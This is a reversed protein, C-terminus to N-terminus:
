NLVRAIKRKLLRQEPKSQTLKIAKQYYGVARNPDILREYIEGLIAYYLYYAGVIKHDELKKITNLAEEAGFLELVVLCRNLFVIPDNDKKLLLDYYSLIEKWNTKEYSVSICHQYAIAAELHYTSLSEGFASQNLYDNGKGILEKSWLGRDQDSLLILDGCSSIRSDIRATHFLMLAMLAYVESLQTRENDLLSKCLWMAQSIVDKRVLKDGHTANYGENFILYITSLVTKTKDIIEEQLPIKPYIKHKRFYEKTRYLRKSITDESTLFSRAVEKTSFGCLSKLIFTIQNEPSIDPHCSAYMMALFDDQIYQEKWLNDVTSVLTYESTLLKREPDSFDITKSHKNRRLIDIAKNRATRYLWAKPNDPIGRYKWTELASVLADQVVDEAMEINETGFIKILVAVMKGSEQRFLHNLTNDIHDESEM